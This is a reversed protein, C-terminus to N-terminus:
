GCSSIRSFIDKTKLESSFKYVELVHPHAEHEMQDVCNVLHNVSSSAYDTFDSVPREFDINHTTKDGLKLSSQLSKALDCKILDGTDDYLAEWSSDDDLYSQMKENTNQVNNSDSVQNLSTNKSAFVDSSSDSIAINNRCHSKHDPEPSAAKAAPPTYLQKSPRRPKASTTKCIKKNGEISVVTKQSNSTLKQTNNTVNGADNSNSLAQCHDNNLNGNSPCSKCPQSETYLNM